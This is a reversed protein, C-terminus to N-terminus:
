RGLQPAGAGPQRRPPEIVEVEVGAPAIAKVYDAFAAAITEPDQNPVLRM